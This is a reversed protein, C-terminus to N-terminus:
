MAQVGHSSSQWQWWQYSCGLFSFTGSRSAVAGPRLRTGEKRHSGHTQAKRGRGGRDWERAWRGAMCRNARCEGNWSEGASEKDRHDTPTASIRVRLDCEGTWPVCVQAQWHDSSPTIPNTVLNWLYNRLRGEKPFSVLVSLIVWILSYRCLLYSVM